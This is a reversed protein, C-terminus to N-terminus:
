ADAWPQPETHGLMAAAADALYAYEVLPLATVSMANPYAEQAYGSLELRLDKFVKVGWTGDAYSREYAVPRGTKQIAQSIIAWCSVKAKKIENKVTM